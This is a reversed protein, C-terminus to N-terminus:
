RRKRRAPSPYGHGLGRKRSSVRLISVKSIQNVVKKPKRIRLNAGTIAPFEGFRNEVVANRSDLVVVNHRGNLSPRLVVDVLQIPVRRGRDAVEFVDAAAAIRLRGGDQSIDVLLLNQGEQSREREANVMVCHKRIMGEFADFAAQWERPPHAGSASAADRPVGGLYYTTRFGEHEFRLLLVTWAPRAEQEYRGMQNYNPHDRPVGPRQPHTVLLREIQFGRPLIALRAVAIEELAALSANFSDQNIWLSERWGYPERPNRKDRLMLFGKYPPLPNMM